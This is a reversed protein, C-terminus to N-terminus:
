LDVHKVITEATAKDVNELLANNVMLIRNPGILSKWARINDLLLPDAYRQPSLFCFKNNEPYKIRDKNKHGNSISYFILFHVSFYCLFGRSDSKQMANDSTLHLCEGRKAINM